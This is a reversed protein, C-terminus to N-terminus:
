VPVYMKRMAEECVDKTVRDPWDRPDRSYVVHTVRGHEDLLEKRYDGGLDIIAPPPSYARLHGSQM